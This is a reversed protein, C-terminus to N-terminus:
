QEDEPGGMGADAALSGQAALEVNSGGPDNRQVCNDRIEASCVPYTDRAVPQYTDLRQALVQGTGAATPLPADAVATGRDPTEAAADGTVRAQAGVAARAPVDQAQSQARLQADAEADAPPVQTRVQADTAIEAQTTLGETTDTVVEGTVDTAVDGTVEATPPTQAAAATGAYLLAIMTLKNM